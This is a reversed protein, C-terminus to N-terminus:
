LAEHVFAHRWVRVSQLGLARSRVAELQLNRGHGCVCVSLLALMWAYPHGSQLGSEPSPACVSLPESLQVCMEEVAHQLPCLQTRPGLATGLATGLALGQHM